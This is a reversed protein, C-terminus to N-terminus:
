IYGGLETLLERVRPELRVALQSPAFPLSDTRRERVTIPAGSEGMRRLIMQALRAREQALTVAEGYAGAQRALYIAIVFVVMAGFLLMSFRTALWARLSM